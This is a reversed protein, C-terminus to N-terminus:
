GLHHGVEGFDLALVLERQQQLEGVVKRRQGGIEFLRRHLRHRFALRRQEQVDVGAVGVPHPQM